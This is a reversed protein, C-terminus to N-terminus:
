AGRGEPRVIPVAANIGLSWVGSLLFAAGCTLFGANWNDSGVVWNLLLPSLAAGFNGWMNGWGLVSGVHRGGVDLNCAWTAPLGFDTAFAVVAFALTATYADVGFLCAVYAGAAVFRSLALPLARGWRVGLVQALTDTAWGGAMMGVWGVLLPISALLGREEIPVKHAEALYRPLWTVLFVWGVNTGMQSLCMLWMSGNRVLAGLPVRSVRRGESPVEPPQGERILLVEAENCRPHSALDDRTLFWFLGAVALGALAFVV